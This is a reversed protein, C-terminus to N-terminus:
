NNLNNYEQKIKNEKKFKEIEEKLKNIILEKNDKEKKKPKQM